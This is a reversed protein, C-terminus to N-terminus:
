IMSREIADLEAEGDLAKLRGERCARLRDHSEALWAQDIRDQDAPDLSEWLADIMQAREWAPLKLAENTLIVNDM